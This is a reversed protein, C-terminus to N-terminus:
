NNIGPLAKSIIVAELPNYRSLKKCLDWYNCRIITVYLKSNSIQPHELCGLYECNITPSLMKNLVQSLLTEDVVRNVTNVTLSINLLM